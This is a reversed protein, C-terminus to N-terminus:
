LSKKIKELEEWSYKHFLEKLIKIKQEEELNSAGFTNHIEEDGIENKIADRLDMLEAEGFDRLNSIIDRMYIDVDVDTEVTMHGSSSRYKSM